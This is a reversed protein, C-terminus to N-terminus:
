GVRLLGRDQFGWAGPPCRTMKRVAEEVTFLPQDARLDRPHPRPRSRGPHASGDAAFATSEWRGYDTDMAVWPQSLGLKVDDEHM